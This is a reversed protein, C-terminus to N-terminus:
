MKSRREPIAKPNQRIQGANKDKRVRLILAERNDIKVTSLLLM